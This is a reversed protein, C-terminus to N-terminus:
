KNTTPKPKEKAIKEQSKIKERELNRDKENETKLTDRDKDQQEKQLQLKVVEVIDPIGDNDADNGRRIVDAKIEAEALKTIREELRDRIIKEIEHAQIDEQMEKRDQELKRNAEEQMQQQQAMRDQQKKAEVTILQHTEEPSTGSTIAKILASVSEMGQGANQGFAHVLQLMIENYQVDKSHNAIWIGVNNNTLYDPTIKLMEETGSPLIYHFLMEEKDPHREFYMRVYEKFNNVYDDLVKQWVKNHKYFYFETIHHSQAIAQKNDTVNSNNSFMSERQPSIGMAMSIERDIFELLQQLNLLEVAAGLSYGSSGPSRTAPPLGGFSTQTGSYLDISTKQLFKLYTAVKDRIPEGEADLGLEDPIQDVDISQIYARYKALERNQVHKIYFAQFQYPLARQILSISKANRDTYVMGKYSLEFSSYPNFLNVPQNPVERYDKYVTEGFRNVEYKRPIWIYEVTFEQGTFEDEWVYKYSEDGYDNVFEIKEAYKPVDYEGDLAECVEKNYENVYSLFAFKRFAKFEIHTKWILHDYIDSYGIGQTQHTGINKDKYSNKDGLYKHEKYNRIKDTMYEATGGSVDHRKDHINNSYAHDLLEYIEEDTTNPYESLFDSITVPSRNWVYESKEIRRENPAKYFGTHLPNAIEIYPKGYKWGSYIIERDAIIVDEFGEANKTKVDQDYYAYKIIKNTLIQHETLFDKEAIKDPPPTARDKDMQELDYNSAGSKQAKAKAFEIEIDEQVSQQLKENLLKNKQEIAQPNLLYAKHEDTRKLLEGVLVNKKNHLKNYPLIQDKHEDPIEEGIMSVFKNLEDRFGALDNNVVQYSTQMEKFGEITNAYTPVIYESYTKFWQGDNAYKDKESVKLNVLRERNSYLNYKNKNKMFNRKQERLIDKIPM